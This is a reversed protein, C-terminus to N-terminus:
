RISLRITLKPQCGMVGLILRSAAYSPQLGSSALHCLSIHDLTTQTHLLRSFNLSLIEKFGQLKGSSIPYRRQTKSLTFRIQQVPCQIM